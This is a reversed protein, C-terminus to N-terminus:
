ITVEDMIDIYMNTVQNCTKKLEVNNLLGGISKPNMAMLYVEGDREIITIRCPLFQGIRTDKKVANYVLNFNCFYIILDNPSHKNNSYGQGLKQERILRYNKGNIAKKLNALTKKYSYPSKMIIVPSQKQDFQPDTESSYSALQIDAYTSPSLLLFLMLGIIRMEIRGINWYTLITVLSISLHPYFLIKATILLIVYKHSLLM